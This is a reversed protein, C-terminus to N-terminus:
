NIAGSEETKALGIRLESLRTSDESGESAECAMHVKLMGTKWAGVSCIVSSEVGLLKEAWVGEM